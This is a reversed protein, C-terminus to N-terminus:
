KLKYVGQLIPLTRTQKAEVAGLVIGPVWCARLFHHNCHSESHPITPSMKTELNYPEMKNPYHIKFFFSQLDPTGM